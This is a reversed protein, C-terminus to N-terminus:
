LRNTFGSYNRPKLVRFDLNVNTRNVQSYLEVSSEGKLQHGTLYTNHSSAIYYTSMPRNMDAENPVARENIFAFNDKDMLYRAFGEFSLCNQARLSADPEHRQLNSEILAPSRPSASSWKRTHAGERGGGDVGGNAENRLVQRVDVAHHSAFQEHRNRRLEHFHQGGSHRRLNEKAFEGRRRGIGHSQEANVFRRVIGDTRSPAAFSEGVILTSIKGIKQPKRAPELKAKVGNIKPSANTNVAM